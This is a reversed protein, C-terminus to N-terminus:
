CLLRIIKTSGPVGDVSNLATHLCWQGLASYCLRYIFSEESENLHRIIGMDASMALLLDVMDKM